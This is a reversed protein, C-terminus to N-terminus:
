RGDKGKQERRNRESSVFLRERERPFLLTNETEQRGGHKSVMTKLVRTQMKQEEQLKKKKERPGESRRRQSQRTSTEMERKGRAQRKKDRWAQIFLCLFSTWIAPQALIRLDPQVDKLERPMGESAFLQLEEAFQRINESLVFVRPLLPELVIFWLFLVYRVIFVPYAHLFREASENSQAQYVAAGERRLTGYVSM